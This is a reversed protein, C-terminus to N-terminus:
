YNSDCLAMLVLSFFHKYNYYLSGSNQPHILRIHKGDLAGICNPFKANQEFGKSIELWKEKTPQPMVINKLKRWIVKCVQHIIAAATSKGM